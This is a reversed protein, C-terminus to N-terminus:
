KKRAVAEGAERKLRNETYLALAKAEQLTFRDTYRKLIRDEKSGPPSPLLRWLNDFLTINDKITGELSGPAFQTIM